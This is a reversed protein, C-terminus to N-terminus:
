KIASKLLAPNSAIKPATYLAVGVVAVVTVGGLILGWRILDTLGFDFPSRNKDLDTGKPVTSLTGENLRYTWPHALRIDKIRGSSTAWYLEYLIEQILKIGIGTTRSVADVAVNGDYAPWFPSGTGNVPHAGPAYEPITREYALNMYAVIVQCVVDADPSIQLICDNQFTKEWNFCVSYRVESIAKDWDGPDLLRGLSEIIGKSSCPPSSLGSLTQCCAVNFM